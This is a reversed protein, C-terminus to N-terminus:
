FHKLYWGILPRQYMMAIWIGVTLFPGFAFHGGREIRKTLLLFIGYSGGSLIALFIALVVGRWGLFFGCVAVLKIDGGGFCDHIAVTMGMMPASVALFGVAREPLSIEPETWASVAAPVLLLLLLGNPIIMTDQDVGAIIILDATILFVVAGHWTYGFNKVILVSCIGTVAAALFGTSAPRDEGCEKDTLRIYRSIRGAAMNLLCGVCCGIFFM